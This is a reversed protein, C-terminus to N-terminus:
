TLKIVKSFCPFQDIIPFLGKLSEQIKMMTNACVRKKGIKSGVKNSVNTHFTVIMFHSLWGLLYYCNGNLIVIGLTYITM